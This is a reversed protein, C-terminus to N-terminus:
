ISAPQIVSISARCSAASQSYLLGLRNKSSSDNAASPVQFKVEPSRAYLRPLLIMQMRHLQSLLLVGMRLESCRRRRSSNISNRQRCRLPRTHGTPVIPTLLLNLKHLARRATSFDEREM